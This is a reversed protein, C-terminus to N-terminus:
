GRRKDSAPSGLVQMVKDFVECDDEDCGDSPYEPNTHMVLGVMAEDNSDTDPGAGAYHMLDHKRYGRTSQELMGLECWHALGAQVQEREGQLVVHEHVLSDHIHDLTRWQRGTQEVDLFIATLLDNWAQLAPTPASTAM